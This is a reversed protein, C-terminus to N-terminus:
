PCKLPTDPTPRFSALLAQWEQQGKEYFGPPMATPTHLNLIDGPDNPYAYDTQFHAGSSTVQWSVGDRVAPLGALTTNDHTPTFFEGTKRGKWFAQQISVITGIM